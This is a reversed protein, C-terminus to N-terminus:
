YFVYLKQSQILPGYLFNQLIYFTNNRFICCYLVRIIDTHGDHYAKQGRLKFICSWLSIGQFLSPKHIQHGLFYRLDIGYYDTDMNPLNRSKCNINATLEPDGLVVSQIFQQTSIGTLTKQGRVRFLLNAFFIKSFRIM